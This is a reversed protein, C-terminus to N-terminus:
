PIEFTSSHWRLSVILEELNGKTEKDLIYVTTLLHEVIILAADLSRSNPTKIDHAADNGLFRISHLRTSDKQSILGKLALNNIRNSLEKGKIDQDNCIAEITARFGIGALTKAGEKYANCTESYIKRVVQPLYHTEITCVNAKPYNDISIPVEWENDETPYVQEYDYETLRFTVGECGKCKVISHEIMCNYEEPDTTFQHLGEISHWTTRNCRRCYNKVDQHAM